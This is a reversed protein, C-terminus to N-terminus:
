PRHPRREGIPLLQIRVQKPGDMVAREIIQPIFGAAGLEPVLIDPVNFDHGSGTGKGVPVLDDSGKVGLFGTGGTFLLKKM